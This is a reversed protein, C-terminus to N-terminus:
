YVCAFYPYIVSVPTAEIQRTVFRDFSQDDVQFQTSKSTVILPAKREDAVELIRHM